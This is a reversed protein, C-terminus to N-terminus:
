HQQGPHPHWLEAGDANGPRTLVGSCGALTLALLVATIRIM